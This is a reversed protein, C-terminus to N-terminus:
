PALLKRLQHLEAAGYALHEKLRRIGVDGPGQIAKALRRHDNLERSRKTEARGLDGRRREALALALALEGRLGEYWRMLHENGSAAVLATHFARDAQAAADTDGNSNATEIAAVFPELAAAREKSPLTQLARLGALELIERAAFLDDIEQDSFDAVAAGRNMQYRVLHEGELIRIAERLSNRSVGLEEALPVERLPSGPALRGELIASRIAAAVQEATSQRRIELGFSRGLARNGNRRSSPVTQEVDPNDPM